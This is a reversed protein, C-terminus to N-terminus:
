SQDNATLIWYAKKERDMSQITWRRGQYKLRWRGRLNLGMYRFKFRKSSGVNTQGVGTTRSGSLNTVEAKLTHREAVYEVPRGSGDKYSEWRELQIIGVM